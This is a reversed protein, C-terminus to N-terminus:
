DSDSPNDIYTISVCLVSPLDTKLNVLQKVVENYALEVPASDKTIIESLPEELTTLSNIANTFQNQIIVDLKQDGKQADVAMLYDDLGLGNTGNDTQGLYLQQSAKLSALALKVAHGSYYAEVKTPHTFGLTLVGSPVGLKERKILEYNQNLGNILLSLSTGAATGTNNIFTEKYGNNWATYTQDVREKIDAVLASVYKAYNAEAEYKAVIADTNEAIGFLLYDLAPLGKSYIESQKFDYIGATINADIENANTPFNNLSARLLIAEAPGFEFQAAAQWNLYVDLWATRMAELHAVSSEQVFLETTKSLAQTSVQLKQYAPLIINDAVNQFMAQQNFDAQCADPMPDDQCSQFLLSAGLFLLLSYKFRNIM